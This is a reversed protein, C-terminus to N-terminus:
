RLRSFNQSRSVFMIWALERRREGPRLLLIQTGKQLQNVTEGRVREDHNGRTPGYRSAIKDYAKMLRKCTEGSFNDRRILKGEPGTVINGANEKKRGPATIRVNHVGGNARRLRSM